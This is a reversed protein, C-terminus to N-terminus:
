KDDEIATILQRERLWSLAQQVSGHPLKSERIIDRAVIGEIGTKHIVRLVRKRHDSLDLTELDTGEPLTAIYRARVFERAPKVVERPQFRAPIEGAAWKVPWLVFVTQEGAETCGLFRGADDWHAAVPERCAGCLGLKGRRAPTPAERSVTVLEALQEPTPANVSPAEGNGKRSHPVSVVAFAGRSSSTAM